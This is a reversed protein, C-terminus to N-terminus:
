SLEQKSNKNSKNNKSYIQEIIERERDSLNIM